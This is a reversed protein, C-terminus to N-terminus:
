QVNDKPPREYLLLALLYVLWHRVREGSLGRNTDRLFGQCWEHDYIDLSSRLQAYGVEIEATHWVTVVVATCNPDWMMIVDDFPFMKRTVPGKHQSNMPWRHMGRALALSASSQHKRQDAGSGVASCVISVSTIQSTMARMIVDSYYILPITLWVWDWLYSYM